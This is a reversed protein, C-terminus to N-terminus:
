ENEEDLQFPIHPYFKYINPANNPGEGFIELAYIWDGEPVLYQFHQLFIEQSEKNLYNLQESREESEYGMDEIIRYTKSPVPEKIKEWDEERPPWNNPTVDRFEFNLKFKDWIDAYEQGTLGQWAPWAHKYISFGPVFEDIVDVEYQHYGHDRSQARSILSDYILKRMPEKMARRKEARYALRALFHVSGGVILGVAAIILGVCILYPAIAVLQPSRGGITFGAYKLVLLLPVAHIVAGIILVVIMITISRNQLVKLRVLRNVQRDVLKANSM